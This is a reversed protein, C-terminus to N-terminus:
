PIAKSPGGHGRQIALVVVVSATAMLLMLLGAATVTPDFEFRLGDFMKVPLTRYRTGGLFLAIVIEDLSNVFALLFSAVMAPAVIPLLITRVSRAPTAGLSEAARELDPDVGELAANLVLVVFPTAISAHALVVGTFSGAMDLRIFFFYFAISSVILPTVMPLVFFLAFGGRLGAPLRRLGIAAPTGIAVALAASVLGVSLSNLIASPWPTPGAGEWSLLREFHQLSFGPPPFSLTRGSSFAMPVTILVPAVLFVLIACVLLRLGVSPRENEM